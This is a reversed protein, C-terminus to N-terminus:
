EEKYLSLHLTLTITVDDDENLIVNSFETSYAANDVGMLENAGGETYDGAIFNGQGSTAVVRYAGPEIDVGVTYSGSVLEYTPTSSYQRGTASATISTFEFEVVATQSIYLYDGKSFSFSEFIAAMSANGSSDTTVMSNIGSLGDYNSSLVNGQGSIGTVKARGAPLDVGFEYSGATLRYVTQEPLAPETTTPETPANTTPAVTPKTTPKNNGDNDRVSVSEDRSRSTTPTTNEKNKRGSVAIGLYIVWAAAILVIKLTKNMKNNRALLITLPLPFIFLWGLVWWLTKRKKPPQQAVQQVIVTQPAAQPPYYAGAEAQARQRGREFQYGTEEANDYQVHQVEDDVFVKTGCYTCFAQKAEANIELDAGCSPCKISVLKM